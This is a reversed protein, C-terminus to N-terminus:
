GEVPRDSDSPSRRHAHARFAVPQALADRLRRGLDGWRNIPGKVTDDNLHWVGLWSAMTAAAIVGSDNFCFLALVGAWMWYPLGLLLALSLWMLMSWSSYQLLKMNMAWKRTFTTTWSAPDHLFHGLHSDPAMFYTFVVMGVLVIGIVGISGLAQRKQGSKMKKEFLYAAMMAAAGLMAGVNAGLQPLGAVLVWIGMLALATKRYRTVIIAIAGTVLGAVENGIGYYRAGEQPSYGFGTWRLYDPWVVVAIAM